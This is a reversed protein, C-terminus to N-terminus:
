FQLPRSVDIHDLLTSPLSTSNIPHALLYACAKSLTQLDLVHTGTYPKSHLASLRLLTLGGRAGLSNRLYSVTMSREIKTRHVLTEDLSRRAGCCKCPCILRGSNEQQSGGMTLSVVAIEERNLRSVQMYSAQYSFGLSVRCSIKLTYLSRHDEGGGRPSAERGWFPPAPPCTPEARRVVSPCMSTPTFYLSHHPSPVGRPSSFLFSSLNSPLLFLFTPFHKMVTIHKTLRLAIALLACRKGELIM